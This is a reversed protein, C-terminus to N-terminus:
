RRSSRNPRRRILVRLWPLPAPRCPRRQPRCRGPAHTEDVKPGHETGFMLWALLGVGALAIAGGALKRNGPRKAPPIASRGQADATFPEFAAPAPAAAATAFSAAAARPMFAEFDTRSLKNWLNAPAYPFTAERISLASVYATLLKAAYFPVEYESFVPRAHTSAWERGFTVAQNALPYLTPLLLNGQVDIMPATM